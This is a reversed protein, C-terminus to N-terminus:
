TYMLEAMHSMKKPIHLYNDLYAALENVSVDEQVCEERCSRVRMGASRSANPFVPQGHFTPPSVTSVSPTTRDTFAEDSHRLQTSTAVCPLTQGIDESKSEETKQRNTEVTINPRRRFQNVTHRNRSHYQDVSLRKFSRRVDETPSSAM